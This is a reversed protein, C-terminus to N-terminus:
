VAQLYDWKVSKHWSCISNRIPQHWTPLTCKRLESKSRIVQNFFNNDNKPSVTLLTCITDMCNLVLTTDDQYDSAKFNLSASPNMFLAARDQARAAMHFTTYCGVRAIGSNTWSSKMLKMQISLFLWNSSFKTERIIKGIYHRTNKASPRRCTCQPCLILKM